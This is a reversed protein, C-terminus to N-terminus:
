DQLYKIELYDIFHILERQAEPSLKEVRAWVERLDHDNQKGPRKAVENQSTSGEELFFSVPKGLVQAIKQLATISPEVQNTEYRSISKQKTGLLDALQQQTLRKEVRALRIKDGLAM